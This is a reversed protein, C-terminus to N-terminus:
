NEISAELERLEKSKKVLKKQLALREDILEEKRKAIIKKNKITALTMSIIFVVIFFGINQNDTLPFRSAFFTTISAVILPILFVQLFSVSSGLSSIMDNKNKLEKRLSLIEDMIIKKEEM